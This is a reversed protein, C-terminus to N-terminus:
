ESLRFALLTEWANMDPEERPDTLYFELRCAWHEGDSARWMDFMLGEREAWDLLERTAGALESPHGVHRLTAFRGAPMMGFVIPGDGAVLETVPVGVQMRLERDMDIVDYKFFPPGAPEIGKGALWAFVEPLRDAIEPITATTVVGDIAVYPQDGHQALTPEDAMGSREGVANPFAVSSMKTGRDAPRVGSVITGLARGVRDPRPKSRVVFSARISRIIGTLLELSCVIRIRDRRSSRCGAPYPANGPRGGSRGAVTSTPKQSLTATPQQRDGARQVRDQVALGADAVVHGPLDAVLEAGVEACVEDPFGGALLEVVGVV